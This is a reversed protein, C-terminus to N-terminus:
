FFGRAVGLWVSDYRRHRDATGSPSVTVSGEPLVTGIRLTPPQLRDAM